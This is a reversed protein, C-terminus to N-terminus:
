KMGNMSHVMQTYFFYVAGAIAPHVYPAYRGGVVASPGLNGPVAAYCLLAVEVGMAWPQNVFGLLQPM